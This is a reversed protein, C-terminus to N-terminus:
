EFRGRETKSDQNESKSSGEESTNETKDPTQGKVLITPPIKTARALSEGFTFDKDNLIHIECRSLGHRNM